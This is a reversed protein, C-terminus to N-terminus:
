SLVKKLRLKFHYRKAFRHSEDRLRQLLHLGPNDERLKVITYGEEGRPIIIEELRKAIGITPLVIGAEKMVQFAAGVQVKGGDIIILNPKGWDELHKLRRSITERMMAYDDQGSAKKIKFQRYYNKNPEGNIFTVMSSTAESGGTHSNDFCEIRRPTRLNKMRPSLVQYLSKIEEERTDELLNPNKLYETPKRFPQTIYELNSLQDRLRAAKEFDEQRSAKGMEKELDRKVSKSKGSLLAIIRKINKRYENKLNMKENKNKINLIYDPCPNCLGIHSYLCPRKGLTTSHYPIVKRIQKLVSKVIGSSPFPGFFISNGLEGGRAIGVVPFSDRTIKIYLPSKDDKASSNYKPFYQKILKAELLLAELETVVPIAEVKVAQTIMSRTKEGNSALHSKIRDRINTSKGVYLVVGNDSKFLYVGPTQPLNKINEQTVMSRELKQM